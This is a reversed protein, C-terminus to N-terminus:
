LVDIRRVGYRLLRKIQRILMQRGATQRTQSCLGWDVLRQRLILCGRDRDLLCKCIQGVQSAIRDRVQLAQLTQACWLEEGATMGPAQEGDQRRQEAATREEEKPM